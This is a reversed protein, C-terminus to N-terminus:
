KFVFPYQDCTYKSDKLSPTNDQIATERFHRIADIKLDGRLLEVIKELDKKYFRFEKEKDWSYISVIENAIFSTDINLKSIDDILWSARDLAICLDFIDQGLIARAIDPRNAVTESFDELNSLIEAKIKNALHNEICKKVQEELEM